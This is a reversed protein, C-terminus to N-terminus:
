KASNRVLFVKGDFDTALVNRGDLALLTNLPVRSPRHIWEIGGTASNLAYICGTMSGYFVIGDKAVLMASNIDYGFGPRSIWVEELSDSRSNFAIVSDRMTRVVVLSSDATLGISERVCHKLSRYIQEGTRCDLVTMARDPAVLFLRNGVAVPWCAAPSYLRGKKRGQWHWRLAGDDAGLAYFKEGWSGFYVNHNHVLPRTEVFGDVADFRWLENGSSLDLKRFRGDSGGIYVGHEEIRPAAVIPAGHKVSWRLIGTALELCNVSSDASAVVVCGEAADPAGLVPGGCKYEWLPRGDALGLAHISGSADGVVVTNGAFSPPATITFGSSWEWVVQVYPYAINVAEDRHASTRNEHRVPNLLGAYWPKSSVIGAGEERILISDGSITVVNFGPGSGHGDLLSRGMAGPYGHFSLSQNSHGHGVLIMRVDVGQLRDILAYWNSISSDIPYHSVIILRSQERRVPALTTDLWRLDEPSFHGDAMRLIPGQQIGLFTYGGHRVVFKNSGFLRPFETTGSESWKTDHNGPIIHFPHHLTHLIDSALRLEASSGMETIDGSILVFDIDTRRNLQAVTTELASAANTSGVHLDSLWAFRLPLVQLVITLLSALM